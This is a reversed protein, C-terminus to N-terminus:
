SWDVLRRGSFLLSTCALTSDESGAASALPSVMCPLRRISVQMVHVM